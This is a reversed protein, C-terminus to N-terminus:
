RKGIETAAKQVVHAIAVSMASPLAAVADESLAQTATLTEGYLLAPEATRRLEFRVECVAKWPSATRDLDFRRLQGTLILDPQSMNQAVGVDSFRNTAIVADMLARLVTDRPLEAWEVDQYRGLENHEDLYVIMQGYPRATEMPRVALTKGSSETASVSVEPTLVYWVTPTYSRTACGAVALLAVFACLLRLGRTTRGRHVTGTEAGIFAGGSAVRM